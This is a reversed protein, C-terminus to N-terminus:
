PLPFRVTITTGHGPESTVSASARHLDIIQKAIALGLGTGGERRSHSKDVKYFREWIFPLDDAPIGIGTDALTLAVADADLATSVTVSGGPPTYKMANDVLILLLQTLREGDGRIEPLSEDPRFVLTVQKQEAQQRMMQVVGNAVAALPITENFADARSSHLRSLDLTDHILHELRLTEDRMLLHYKRAAAPDDATGDILAELYGRIITIPTKLEHSVNAVFDRRLKEMHDLEAIYRALRDALSNIALGLRGVEDNTKVEVRASYDGQEMSGAVGQMAALPGIINRTVYHLAVLALLVALLGTWGVYYYIHELFFDIDAFPTQILVAGIVRNETTIPVAAVLMKEGYDPNDLVRSWVNGAFVPDLDDFVAYMAGPAPPGLAGHGPNGGGAGKRWGSGRGKVSMSALRRSEDLVWIRAGLYTDTKALYADLGSLTGNQEYVVQLESALARGKGTLDQKKEEVTHNKVIVSIGILAGTVLAIIILAFSFVLKLQLSHKM